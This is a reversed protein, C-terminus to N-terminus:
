RFSFASYLVWCPSPITAGYASTAGFLRRRFVCSGARYAPREPIFLNGDGGSKEDRRRASRTPITIVMTASAIKMATTISARIFPITQTTKSSIPKSHGTETARLGPPPTTEGLPVVHYNVLYKNNGPTQTYFESESVKQGNSGPVPVKDWHARLNVINFLGTGIPFFQERRM